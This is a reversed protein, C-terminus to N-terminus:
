NHRSQVPDQIRGKWQGGRGSWYEVASHFTAGVYFIAAVPLALAWLLNLRYLRLVHLYSVIMLLWAAAATGVVWAAPAARHSGGPIGNLVVCLVLAPPLLYTAAMGMM